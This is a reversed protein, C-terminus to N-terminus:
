WCRKVDLELQIAPDQALAILGSQHRSGNLTFSLNLNLARSAGCPSWVQQSGGLIDSFRRDGDFPGYLTEQLFATQSSGAFYHGLKVAANVGSDLNAYTTISGAKVAYSYGSPVYVDVSLQCNKRKERISVGPGTEAVMDTFLLTMARGDDSINQGVSGAPCGSGAYSIDRVILNQANAATSLFAAAAIMQITFKM